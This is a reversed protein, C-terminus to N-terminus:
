FCSISASQASITRTTIVGFSDIKSLKAYREIHAPSYRLSNVRTSYIISLCATESRQHVNFHMRRQPNDMQHKYLM